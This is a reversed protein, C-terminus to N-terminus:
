RNTAISPLFIKLCKGPKEGHTALWEERLVSVSLIDSANGNRVIHERMRGEELLGVKECTRISAGHLESVGGHICCINLKNFGYYMMILVTDTGISRGGFSKDGLM